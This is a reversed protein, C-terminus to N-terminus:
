IASRLSTFRSEALRGTQETFGPAVAPPVAAQATAAQELYGVAKMLNGDQLWFDALANLLDTRSPHSDNLAGTRALAEQLTARAQVNWGSSQYLQAVQRAWGAFRASSV